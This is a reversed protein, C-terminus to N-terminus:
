KLRWKRKYAEFLENLEQMLPVVRTVGFEQAAGVFDEGRPRVSELVERLKSNHMDYVPHSLTGLVGGRRKMVREMVVTFFPVSDAYNLGMLMMYPHVTTRKRGKEADRVEGMVEEVEPIWVLDKLQSGKAHDLLDTERAYNGFAAILVGRVVDEDGDVLSVDLLGKGDKFKPTIYLLEFPLAQVARVLASNVLEVPSQGPLKGCLFDTLCASMLVRAREVLLASPPVPTGEDKKGEGDGKLEELAEDIPM